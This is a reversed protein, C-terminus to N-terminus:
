FPIRILKKLRRLSARGAIGRGNWVLFNSILLNLTAFSSLGQLSREQSASTIRRKGKRRSM